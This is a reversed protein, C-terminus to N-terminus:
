YFPKNINKNTINKMKHWFGIASELPSDYYKVNSKDVLMRGLGYGRSREAVWIMHITREKNEDIDFAVFCPLTGSVIDMYADNSESVRKYNCERLTFLRDSAFCDALYGRNCWFGKGKNKAVEELLEDEILTFFESGHTIRYLEIDRSYIKAKSVDDESM